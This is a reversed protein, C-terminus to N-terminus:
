FVQEDDSDVSLQVKRQAEDIHMKMHIANCCAPCDEFYDQDGNTTDLAVHIHHGCIPAPLPKFKATREDTKGGIASLRWDIPNISLVISEPTTLVVSVAVVM